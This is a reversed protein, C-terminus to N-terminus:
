PATWARNTDASPTPSGFQTDDPLLKMRPPSDNPWKGRTAYLGSAAPPIPPNTTVHCVFVFKWAPTKPFNGVAGAAAVPDDQCGALLASAALSASFLGAGQVLRRRTLPSLNLTEVAEDVKPHVRTM